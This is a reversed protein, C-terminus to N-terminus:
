PDELQNSSVIAVDENEGQTDWLVHRDKISVEFVPFVINHYSEQNHTSQKEHTVRINIM